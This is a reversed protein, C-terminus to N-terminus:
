IKMRLGVGIDLRSLNERQEEELTLTETTYGYDVKVQGLSGGTLSAQAGLTIYKSVAYDYGFDLAAGFTAGTIKFDQDVLVAKDSYGLYGLSIGGFFTHDPNRTAYKSVYSPGIFNITIDDSISGNAGAGNDYSINMNSMTGTSGFRSYKLGVGWSPKIFYAADLGYSYGSKLDNAYDKLAPPIDGSLKALRYAYGGQFAIRIEKKLLVSDQAIQGFTFQAGLFLLLLFATKRM